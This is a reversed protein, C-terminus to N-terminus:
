WPLRPAFSRPVQRVDTARHVNAKGVESASSGLLTLLGPRVTGGSTTARARPVVNNGHAIRAFWGNVLGVLDRIQSRSRDLRDESVVEEHEQLQRGQLQRRRWRVEGARLQDDVGDRGHELGAAITEAFV